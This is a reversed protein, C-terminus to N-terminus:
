PLDEIYNGIENCKYATAHYRKLIDSVLLFNYNEMKVAWPRDFFVHKQVLSDLSIVETDTTGEINFCIRGEIDRRSEWPELKIGFRVVKICIFTTMGSLWDSPKGSSRFVQREDLRARGGFGSHWLGNRGGSGARVIPGIPDDWVNSM